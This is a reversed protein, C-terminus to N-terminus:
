RLIKVARTLSGAATEVSIYYTGAPLAATNFAVNQTGESPALAARSIVQGTVTFLRVSGGNAARDIRAIVSERVPNPYVDLAFQPLAIDVQGADTTGMPRLTASIQSPSAGNVTLTGAYAQYGPYDIVLTQPGTAAENMLFGGGNDSAVYDSVGGQADVVYLTAAPLPAENGQAFSIRAAQVTGTVIGGAVHHVRRRLQITFPGQVGSSTVTIKTADTWRPVAPSNAKYYGPVLLRNMPFAQVIWDGPLLNDLTVTNAGTSDTFGVRAHRMDPMPRNPPFYFAVIRSRVGNGASDRVTVSIGNQYVPIKVLPFDIGTRDGTLTIGTAQTPDAVQNYFQVQYTHTYDEAHLIYTQGGPLSLEYQGSANAAASMRFRNGAEAVITARVPASTSADTVTGSIRYMVVRDLVVAISVTDAAGIVVPTASQPDPKNDFWETVFGPASIQVIFTGTDPIGIAFAGHMIPGGFTQPAGIPNAFLRQAMVMGDMVANGSDDQVTGRLLSFPHRPPISDHDAVIDWQQVTQIRPDAALYARMAFGYRGAGPPTFRLVGTLTDLTAAPPSALLRFRIDGPVNSAADADYLYETNSAAHNPPRTTFHIEPPAPVTVVVIPTPASAGDRNGAVLFYSTKGPQIMHLAYAYHSLPQRASDLRAPIQEVPRFQNRDQQDGPAAFLTFFAPAGGAPDVNWQFLIVNQGSSSQQLAATFNLPTGPAAALLTGAGAALLLLALTYRLMKM